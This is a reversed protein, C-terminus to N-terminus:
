KRTEQMMESERRLGDEQIARLIIRIRVLGLWLVVVGLGVPDLPTGDHIPGVVCLVAAITLFFQMTYDLFDAVDLWYRKKNLEKLTM